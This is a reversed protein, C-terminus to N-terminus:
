AAFPTITELDQKPGCLYHMPLCVFCCCCRTCAEGAAAAASAAAAALAPADPASRCCYTAAAAAVAALTPLRLPASVGVGGNDSQVIMLTSAWLERARLEATINGMGADVVKLMSGFNCRSWGTPSFNEPKRPVGPPCYNSYWPEQETILQEAPPPVYPGADWLL